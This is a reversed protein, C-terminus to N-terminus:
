IIERREIGGLEKRGERGDLDMGKRERMLFSSTKLLNFGLIIFYFITLYLLLWRISTPCSLDIVPECM